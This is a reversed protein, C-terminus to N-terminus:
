SMRYLAIGCHTYDGPYRYYIVALVTGDPSLAFGANEVPIGSLDRIVARNVREGTAADFVSFCRINEEEDEETLAVAYDGGSSLAARTCGLTTGAHITSVQGTEKDCLYLLDDAPTSFVYDQVFLVRNGEISQPILTVGANLPTVAGTELNLCYSTPDYNMTNGSIGAIGNRALIVWFSDVEEMESADMLVQDGSGDANKVGVRTLDETIYAIRGDELSEQRDYSNPVAIGTSGTEDELRSGTDLSFFRVGVDDGVSCEVSLTREGTFRIAYPIDGPELFADTIDTLEREPLFMEEPLSSEEAEESSEEPLSEEESSEEGKGSEEQLPESVARSEERSEPNQASSVGTHDGCSSFAAALLLATLGALWRGKM